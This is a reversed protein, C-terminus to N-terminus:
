VDGLWKTIALSATTPGEERFMQVCHVPVSVYMCVIIIIYM